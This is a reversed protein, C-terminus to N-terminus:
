AERPPRSWVVAVTRDDNNGRMKWDVTRLFDSAKPPQEVVSAIVKGLIEPQADLGKGFGDSALATVDDDALVACGTRVSDADRPMAKTRNDHAPASSEPPYLPRWSLRTLNLVDIRADGVGGYYVEFGLESRHCVAFALTAAPPRPGQPSTDAPLQYGAAAAQRKLAPPELLRGVRHVARRARKDWNDPVPPGNRGVDESLTRVIQSAGVGAAAHAAWSSSVGDAVAIVVVSSTTSCGSFAYADERYRGRVEHDAGAQSAAYVTFPGWNGRDAVVGASGSGTRLPLEVRHGEYSAAPLAPGTYPAPATM